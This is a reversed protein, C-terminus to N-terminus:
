RQRSYFPCGYLLGRRMRGLGRGAERDRQQMAREAAERQSATLEEVDEDDLALGDAEYTDLGPIPRYDREMGDGILEEGDEEEEEVPGETGLLGESEDEFPPLDRGPSSTLADTRRSSRGPSSTLPDNSRRRRAPSSATTFSESSEAM